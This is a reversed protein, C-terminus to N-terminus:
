QALRASQRAKVGLVTSVAAGAALLVFVLALLSAVARNRKCWRWGQALRGVPRAAIPRDEQYARLDQALALASAYRRRPEKQLCKLAITELDRPVKPNLQRPPVPESSVVQLITDLPTAAKFPPRGTLCEYLIAGLAYVDAAPGIEKSKGGAQEPAMYSPTGMISGSRTQGAQDLKKALGFDTIKPQGDATLLVNAPKLDRHVIGASHAAHVARALAEALRATERAPLPTGSLKRDLAGGAVFELSFFPLGGVEGVEFVQVIGPHQLQAVAQAETRFRVLD